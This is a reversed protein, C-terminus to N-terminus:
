HHQDRCGDRNQDDCGRGRDGHDDGGRRQSHEGGGRGYGGGDPWVCGSLGVLTGILTLTAIPILRKM